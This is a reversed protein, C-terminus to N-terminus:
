SGQGERLHRELTEVLEAAIVERKVARSTVTLDAKAYVPYRRDMLDRMVKRPDAAKLLPRDARRAVREMLTDLDAKLWVTIAKDALLCRTEANMYAGGGTAIVRPGELVLRAIVRAELARFEPEGYTEFLEAVSMTSVSEIEADSDVFPLSLLTAVRRGVTTKGAGMLGVLVIPRGDLRDRISMDKDAATEGDM